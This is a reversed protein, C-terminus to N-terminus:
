QQLVLDNLRFTRLDSSWSMKKAKDGSPGEGRKLAIWYAASYGNLHAKLNEYVSEQEEYSSITLLNM